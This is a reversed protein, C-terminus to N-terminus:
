LPSYSAPRLLTIENRSVTNAYEPMPSLKKWEPDDVFTKWHADRDQMNEFTTMYMLNPMRSGAIVEGYFVANFNLREFLKIEGGKNFMEVKKRYLKETAGEYSRLEYVREQAPGKLTPKRAVPMDSFAKLFITEIRTYPANNHASNVFSNGVNLYENDNDIRSSFEVMESASRFPIFVFIRKDASTDNAIPKFVGTRTINYRNVTPIFVNKLFSDLRQEQNADKFHYIRISYYERSSQQEKVAYCSCLLLSAIFLPAFLKLKRM